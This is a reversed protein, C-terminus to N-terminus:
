AKSQASTTVDIQGQQMETVLHRIRPIHNRYGRNHPSYKEQQPILIAPQTPQFILM